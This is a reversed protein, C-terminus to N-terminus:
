VWFGAAPCSGGNSLRSLLSWAGQPAKACSEFAIGGRVRADDALLAWPRPDDNLWARKEIGPGLHRGTLALEEIIGERGGVSRHIHDLIGSPAHAPM